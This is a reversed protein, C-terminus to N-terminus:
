RAVSCKISSTAPREASRWASGRLPAAVHAVGLSAGAAVVLLLVAQVWPPVGARGAFTGTTRLTRIRVAPGLGVVRDSPLTAVLVAKLAQDVLLISGM